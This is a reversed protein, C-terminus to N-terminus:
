DDDQESGSGGQRDEVTPTPASTTTRSRRESERTRRQSEAARKQAEALREANKRQAEALREANRRQAEALREANRRQAEALREAASRDEFTSSPGDDDGEDEDQDDASATGPVTSTTSGDPSDDTEVTTTTTSPLPCEGATAQEGLTAQLATLRAVADTWVPIRRGSAELKSQMWALKETARDLQAQLDAVTEPTAAAVQAQLDAVVALQAEIRAPMEAAVKQWFALRLQARGLRRTVNRVQKVIRRCNLNQAVRPSTTDTQASANAALPGAVVVTTLALTGAALSRRLNMAPDKRSGDAVPMPLTDATPGSNM